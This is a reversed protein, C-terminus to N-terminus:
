DAALGTDVAHGLLRAQRDQNTWYNERDLLYENWERDYEDQWMGYEDYGGGQGAGWQSERRAADELALEYETLGGQFNRDHAGFRGVTNLNHADLGLQAGGQWNRFGSADNMGWTNAAERYGRDHESALQNYLQQHEGLRRGYVKDYQQAGRDQGWALLDKLTGGTHLVGRAAAAREMARRGEDVSFQYGPDAAAEAATPAVFRDPAGFTGHAFADPADYAGPSYADFGVAEYDYPGIGEYFDPAAEGGDDGGGFDPRDPAVFKRDWPNLLSGGTYEFMPPIADDASPAAPAANDALPLPTTNQIQNASSQGSPLFGRSQWTRSGREEAADRQGQATYPYRRGEVVPM